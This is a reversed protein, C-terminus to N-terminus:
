TVAPSRELGSIQRSLFVAFVGLCAPVFAFFFEASLFPLIIRPYLTIVRFWHSAFSPVNTFIECVLAIVPVHVFVTLGSFLAYRIKRNEVYDSVWFAVMVASTAFIGWVLVLSAYGPDSVRLVSYIGLIFSQAALWSAFFSLLTKM